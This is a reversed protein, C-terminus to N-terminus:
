KVTRGKTTNSQAPPPVLSPIEFDIKNVPKIGLFDDDKAASWNYCMEEKDTPKM